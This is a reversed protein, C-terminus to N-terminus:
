KVRAHDVFIHSRYRHRSACTTDDYRESRSVCDIDHSARSHYGNCGEVPRALGSRKAFALPSHYFLRQQRGAALRSPPHISKAQLRVAVLLLKRRPSLDVCIWPCPCALTSSESRGLCFLGFSDRHLFHNAPLRTFTSDHTVKNSLVVLVVLLL